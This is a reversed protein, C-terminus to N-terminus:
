DSEGLGLARMAEGVVYLSGTVVVVDDRGAQDVAERLALSVPTYAATHRCHRFVVRQLEHADLARPSSSATAMVRDALPGLTSAIAQVDKDRGVGLVLIIRRSPFLSELAAALAAAGVEDHAGDLIVYPSRSVIQFRGPWRVSKIGARIAEEGVEIGHDALLEVMGVAVAANEAQHAGLLPCDLDAYIGRLGQVTLVQHARDSQVVSAKPGSEEGVVILQAGRELCVEQFVEMAETPQPASIVSVGPKIIGAKEGAIEAITDGLEQTHDRAIRTLACALPTVVNTADLRGGLGAELVALSVQRRAFHLFGMLTYVEFFSPPGMDSEGMGEAVPRIEDVLTIVDP